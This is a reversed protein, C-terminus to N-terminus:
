QMKNGFFSENRQRGGTILKHLTPDVKIPVEIASNIKQLLYM